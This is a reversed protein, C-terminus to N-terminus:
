GHGTSCRFPVWGGKIVLLVFSVSRDDSADALLGLGGADLEGLRIAFAAVMVDPHEVAHHDRDRSM